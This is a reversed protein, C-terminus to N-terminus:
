EVYQSPHNRPREKTTITALMIIPIVAAILLPTICLIIYLLMM